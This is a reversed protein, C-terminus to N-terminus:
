NMSPDGDAKSRLREELKNMSEDSFVVRGEDKRWKYEKPLVMVSAKKKQGSLWQIFGGDSVFIQRIKVEKIKEENGSGDQTSQSENNKGDSEIERFQLAQVIHYGLSSSIVGSIQGEELNFVMNGVEPALQDKRFWGLEGGSEASKGQSYKKAIQEFNSGDQELENKAKQITQYGETEKSEKEFYHQMLKRMYLQPVVVNERFDKVDWGYINKLNVRFSQENGSDKIQQNLINEADSQSIKIGREKALKIIILNEIKKDLIDKEKIKLRQQGQSTNFDVRMGVKSFDQSEYFNRVAETDAIIESSTIFNGNAIAVPYPFFKAFTRIPERLPNYFFCGVIIIAIVIAALSFAIRKKM